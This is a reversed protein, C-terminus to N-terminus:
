KWEGYCREVWGPEIDFQPEISQPRETKLTIYGQM